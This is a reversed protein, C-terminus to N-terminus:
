SKKFQKQLAEYDDATDIDVSGLAFPIAVVDAQNNQVIKKAGYQGQLLSLESFYKKDFLVPTGATGNYESAIIGKGSHQKAEILGNLLSSSIYPQDCVLIIVATPNSYYQLIYNIGKQISSGMGEEWNENQIFPIQQSLLIDKLLAHYCGTVVVLQTNTTGRVEDITHQLFTKGNFPLLMKPNGMRSSSGAALLLCVTM